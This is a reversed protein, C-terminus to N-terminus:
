GVRDLFPVVDARGWITPDACIACGSKATAGPRRETAKDLRRYRQRAWGGEARYDVIGQILENVAMTAAETTFTVVAPAPNGGGRVYAELKRLEYEQPHHRRLDEEAALSPNITGKCVLCPAGPSLLSVRAAMEALGSQGPGSPMLVLGTDIVPVLYFQAFRNLFLRGTHDDTCGFVIDCSKLADRAEPCDVWGKVASIQVDLGMRRVERVMVDVKPVGDLADQRTAGQLRNLNSLEVADNDIAVIKGVGLRALLHIVPSGTGGCGVVAVRLERLERNVDEGFALAQRELYSTNPANQEQSQIELGAGLFTIRQCDVPVQDDQWVRARFGNPGVQLLSILSAGEGNRNQLLQYLGRENNTDQASFGDFGSPHSHAIAVVLQERDARQCLKVFSNTRWTVHRSSASVHDEDPIACVDFSTYRTRATQGWPDCAIKSVGFLMYAAREDGAPHALLAQLKERHVQQIILDFAMM